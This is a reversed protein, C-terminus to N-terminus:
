GLKISPIVVKKVTMLIITIIAANASETVSRFREESQLLAAEAKKRLTIDHQVGIFGIIEQEESLIPNASGGVNILSGDKTRNILEGKVVEKNLITAWFHSYDEPSMVGSKLIRPTVKGIIEDATYGYLNTFESNVYTFIGDLDTMFIAEASSELARYLKIVEENMLKRIEGKIEENEKQLELNEKVLREYEEDSNGM